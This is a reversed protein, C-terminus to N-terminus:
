PTPAALAAIEPCHSPAILIEGNRQQLAHLDSLTKRYTQTHGLLATTLRPPPVNDRVASSSWAADGVLFRWGSDTRVILGWHGVCHGPLHVALLRGDGFLDVATEFPKFDSKLAVPTMDELFRARTKLDPPTLSTLLGRRVRGFRGFTVLQDAGSRSCFLRADPFAHLGAVHDGHFHSIFVHRIDHPKLGFSAIQDAASHGPKLQVPTTWRYLREPMPHTATFFAPDYGTDFLIAGESPHLILGALAPFEVPCLSAGRRAMVAPHHCFGAKLVHLNCGTM